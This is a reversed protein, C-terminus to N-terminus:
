AKGIKEYGFILTIKIEFLINKFFKTQKVKM